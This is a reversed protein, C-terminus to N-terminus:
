LKPIPAAVETPSVLLASPFLPTHCVESVYMLGGVKLLTPLQQGWFGQLICTHTQMAIM